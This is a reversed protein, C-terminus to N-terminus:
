GFPASAFAVDQNLQSLLTSESIFQASLAGGDVSSAATDFELNLRAASNNADNNAVKLNATTAGTTDQLAIGTRSKNFTATVGAGSSNIKEIVDRLGVAGRLDVSTTTGARNRIEISELNGLGRGGNLTSLLPGQLRNQLRPSAIKGSSEAAGVLGLQRAANGTVGFTGSGTTKDIFEIGDGNDSIKAELKSPSNANIASM